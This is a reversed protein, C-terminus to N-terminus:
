GGMGALFEDAEDISSEMARILSEIDSEIGVVTEQLSAVARANLNHKLLLVQDKFAALVPGMRSEAEKMTRILARYSDQTEDLLQRSSSQAEASSMEGIEEQWEDFLDSAVREISDIRERVDEAAAVSDEYEADLKRYKTELDGGDARTIDKLREYTTQFQEKADAQDERGEQVRDVLIDRKDVGFKEMFGYHLSTCSATTFALACLALPLLRM